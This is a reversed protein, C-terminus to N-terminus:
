DLDPDPGAEACEGLGGGAYQKLILRQTPRAALYRDRGASTIRTWVSRRDDECTGRNVLGSKELRSILRSLASQTLHVEDALEHMRVMQDGAAYLQQLIEFDSVTLGHDTVLARDLACQTKHYRGLLEHWEAALQEEDGTAM